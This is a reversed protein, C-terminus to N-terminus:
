GGTYQVQEAKKIRLIEGAIIAGTAGHKRVTPPASCHVHSRIPYFVWTGGVKTQSVTSKVLLFVAKQWWTADTMVADTDDRFIFYFLFYSMFYFFITSFFSM